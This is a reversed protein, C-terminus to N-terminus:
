SCTWPVLVYAKMPMMWGINNKAAHERCWYMPKWQCWYEKRGSIGTKKKQSFSIGTELM